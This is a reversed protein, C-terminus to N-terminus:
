SEAQGSTLHLFHKELDDRAHTLEFVTLGGEVLLQALQGSIRDISDQEPVNVEISSDHVSCIWQPCRRALLKMARKVDNVRASAKTSRELLSKVTGQLVNRGENVIVVDTCTLEVDRLLHSSLFVTRGESPMSTLLTRM